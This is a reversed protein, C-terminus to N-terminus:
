VGLFVAFALLQVKLEDVFNFGACLGKLDRMQQEIYQQNVVMAQQLASMDQACFFRSSCVFLSQPCVDRAPLLGSELECAHAVVTFQAVLSLWLACCSPVVGTPRLLQSLVKTAQDVSRDAQQKQDISADYRSKVDALVEDVTQTEQSCAPNTLTRFNASHKALACPGSLACRIVNDDHFPL